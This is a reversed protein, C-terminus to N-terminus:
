RLSEGCGVQMPAALPAVPELIPEIPQVTVAVETTASLRDVAMLLSLFASGLAVGLASHWGATWVNMASGGLVAALTQCFTRICRTAADKAFEKTFM